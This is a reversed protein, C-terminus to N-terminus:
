QQENSYKHFVSLFIIGKSTNHIGIRHAWSQLTYYFLISYFLISIPYATPLAFCTKISIFDLPCINKELNSANSYELILCM